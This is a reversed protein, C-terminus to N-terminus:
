IEELAMERITSKIRSSFSFVKEDNPNIKKKIRICIFTQINLFLYFPGFNITVRIRM